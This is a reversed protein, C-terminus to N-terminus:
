FENDGQKEQRMRVIKKGRQKGEKKENERIEKYKDQKGEKKSIKLQSFTNEDM